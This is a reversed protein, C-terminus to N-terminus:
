KVGERLRRISTVCESVLEPGRFVMGTYFQVLKAGASIKAAADAGSTIGGVGIIPISDDLRLRMKRLATTARQYLPAGSLGGAEGALPHGAIESRDVTTNGVIVGDIRARNLVEAVGDMEADTMDPSVKLLM